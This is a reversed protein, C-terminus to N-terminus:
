EDSEEELNYEYGRLKNVIRVNAGDNSITIEEIEDDGNKIKRLIADSTKEQTFTLGHKKYHAQLKEADAYANQLDLLIYEPKANELMPADMEASEGDYSITGMEIGFDNLMVIQIGSKDATLYLLASISKEGFSGNFLQYSDIEKSIADPPLLSVRKLNTVFVKNLSSSACSAFIMAAAFIPFLRKM